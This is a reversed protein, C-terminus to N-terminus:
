DIAPNARQPVPLDVVEYFWSDDASCIVAGLKDPDDTAQPIVVAVVTRILQHGNLKHSFIIIQKM